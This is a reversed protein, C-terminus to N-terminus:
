PSRQGTVSTPRTTDISDDRNPTAMMAKGEPTMVAPYISSSRRQFSLPSSGFRSYNPRFHTRRPGAPHKPRDEGVRRQRRGCPPAPNRCPPLRLHSDQIGAEHFCFVTRRYLVTQIKTFGSPPRVDVEQDIRVSAGSGDGAPRHLTEALLYGCTLAGCGPKMFAFFRGGLLVTQIKTFGSPSSGLVGVNFTNHEVQQAVSEGYALRLLAGKPHHM